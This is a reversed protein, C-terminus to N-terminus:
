IMNGTFIDLEKKPTKKSEKKRERKPITVPTQDQGHQDHNDQNIYGRASRINMNNVSSIYWSIYIETRYCCWCPQIRIMVSVVGLGNTVRFARPGFLHCFATLGDNDRQCIATDHAPHGTTRRLPWSIGQYPTAFGFWDETMKPISPSPWM